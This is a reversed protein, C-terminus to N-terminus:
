PLSPFWSTCRVDDPEAVLSGCIRVSRGFIPISGTFSGGRRTAIRSEWTHGGDQSRDFWIQTEAPAGDLGAWVCGAGPAYRLTVTLGGLDISENLVEDFPENKLAAARARRGNLSDCQDIRDLHIMFLLGGLVATLAALVIGVPVQGAAAPPTM